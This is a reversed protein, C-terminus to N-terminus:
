GCNGWASTYNKGGHFGFYRVCKGKGRQKIPGAYYKYSGTEYAWSGGTVQLGATIKTNKGISTTKLTVVCNYTGNYLQYVRAGPLAHSRQVKYGSGCVGAATYPNGAAAAPASTGALVIGSAMVTASLVSLVTRFVTRRVSNSMMM